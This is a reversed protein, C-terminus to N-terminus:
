YTFYGSFSLTPQAFSISIPGGDDFAVNQGSHPPLEFENLTIGTSIVTTNTFTLGPFQATISTSDLIASGDPLTEFDITITPVAGARAAEQGFLVMVALVLLLRSTSLILRSLPRLPPMPSTRQM